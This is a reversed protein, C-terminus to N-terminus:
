NNLHSICAKILTPPMTSNGFHQKEAVTIGNMAFTAMQNNPDIELCIHHWSRIPIFQELGSGQISLEGKTFLFMKRTAANFYLGLALWLERKDNMILFFIDTQLLRTRLEQAWVSICIIFDDTLQLPSDTNLVAIRDENSDDADADANPRRELVKLSDRPVM